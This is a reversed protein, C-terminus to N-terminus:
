LSRIEGALWGRYRWRAYNSAREVRRGDTDKLGKAILGRAIEAEEAAYEDESVFRKRVVPWLKGEWDILEESSPSPFDGSVEGPPEPDILAQAVDERDHGEGDGGASFPDVGSAEGEPAM